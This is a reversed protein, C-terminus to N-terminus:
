VRGGTRWNSIMMDSIGTCTPALIDEPVSQGNAFYSFPRGSRAHINFIAGLTSSEDLKTLIVKDFGVQAFRDVLHDLDQRRTTASLVLHIEEPLAADMMSRLEYMRTPSNPSRGATDILVLEADSHKALATEMDRPSYVVEWPVGIIEAYTKIQEIAAIRYTDATILATRAKEVLAFGAAIKAITTTKGVGTPGILGVVKRRGRVVEIPGSVGVLNAIEDFAWELVADSGDPACEYKSAVANALRFATKESVDEDVLFQYVAVMEAPLSHVRARVASERAILNLTADVRSYAVAEQGNEETAVQPRMDQEEVVRHGNGESQLSTGSVGPEPGFAPETTTGRAERASELVTSFGRGWAESDGDIAALVEFMPRQGIGFVALIRALGRAKCQRADLIVAEPGLDARVKNLAEKMTLGKYRKVRM